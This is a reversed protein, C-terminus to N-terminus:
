EPPPEAKPQSEGDLKRRRLELWVPFAAPMELWVLMWSVMEEKMARRAPDKARRAAWRAHDKAEIVLRRCAMQRERDDAEAAQTYDAHLALLTRALQDFDEQRVGEVLPEMPLGSDRVLRRLYSESVDPFRRRLAQWHEETIREAALSALHAAV